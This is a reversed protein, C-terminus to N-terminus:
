YWAKGLKGLKRTEPNGRARHHIGNDVNGGMQLM